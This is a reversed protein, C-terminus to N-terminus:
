LIHYQIRTLCKFVFEFIMQLKMELRTDNWKYKCNYWRTARMCFLRHIDLRGILRNGSRSVIMTRSICTVYYQPTIFQGDVVSRRTTLLDHRPFTGSSTFTSRWQFNSGLLLRGFSAGVACVLEGSRSLGLVSAFLVPFFRTTWTRVLKIRMEMGQLGVTFLYLPNCTRDNGRDASRTRWDGVYAFENQWFEVM